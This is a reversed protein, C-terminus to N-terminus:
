PEVYPDHYILSRGGDIVLSAGNIFGVEDSALFAVAAAVEEPRGLRGVPHVRNLWARADKPDGFGGFYEEALPTDITGPCVANCRIGRDAYEIALSRTLGVVAHKAVPYPFSRYIAQFSLVSGINVISGRGEPVMYRLVARSCNWVGDLDLALCRIWDSQTLKLPENFVNTGANNVLVDPLGVTAVTQEVMREVSAMDTVDTRVSQAMGGEARLREAVREGSKENLEAIVVSAGERALRIAIAEGIGQGAGTVVAIRGDFRRCV